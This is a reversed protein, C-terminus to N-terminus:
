IISFGWSLTIEKLIEDRSALCSSFWDKMREPLVCCCACKKECFCVGDEHLLAIVQMGHLQLRGALHQTRSVRSVSLEPQQSV